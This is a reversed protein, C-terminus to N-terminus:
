KDTLKPKLQEADEEKKFKELIKILDYRGVIAVADDPTQRLSVLRFAMLRQIDEEFGDPWWQELEEFAQKLTPPKPKPIKKENM